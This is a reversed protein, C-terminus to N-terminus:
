ENNGELKYIGYTVMVGYRNKKTEYTTSINYGLKRLNYIKASIRTIGFRIFAEWSTIQKHKQLYELVMQEQTIRKM